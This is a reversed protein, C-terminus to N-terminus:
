YENHATSKSLPCKPSRRLWMWENGKATFCQMTELCQYAARGNSESYRLSHCVGCCEPKTKETASM